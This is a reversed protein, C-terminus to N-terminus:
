FTLFESGFLRSESSFFNHYLSKVVSACTGGTYKQAAMDFLTRALSALFLVFPTFIFRIKGKAILKVERREPKRPCNKRSNKNLRLNNQRLCLSEELFM